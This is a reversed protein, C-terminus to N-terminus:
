VLPLLISLSLSNSSTKFKLSLPAFLPFHLLKLHFSRPTTQPYELSWPPLGRKHRNLVTWLPVKLLYKFQVSRMNAKHSGTFRRLKIITTTPRYGVMGRSISVLYHIPWGCIAWRTTDRPLCASPLPPVRISGIIDNCNTAMRPMDTPARINHQESKHGQLTQKNIRIEVVSEAILSLKNVVGVWLFAHKM